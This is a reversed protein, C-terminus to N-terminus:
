LQVFETNKPISKFERGTYYTHNFEYKVVSPGPEYTDESTNYVVIMNPDLKSLEDILEKVTM